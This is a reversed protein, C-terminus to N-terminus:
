NKHIRIPGKEPVHAQHDAPVPAVAVDLRRDQGSGIAALLEVLVLEALGKEVRLLVLALDLPQRCEGDGLIERAAPQTVPRHVYDMLVVRELGRHTGPPKQDIEELHEVVRAEAALPREVAVGVAHAARQVKQEVDGVQAGM